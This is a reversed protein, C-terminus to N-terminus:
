VECIIGQWLRGGLDPARWLGLVGFAIILLGALWRVSQRRLVDRFRALALGALLLNPLTGLAFCGMLLAGQTASGSLLATSLVSYILGCPILGWLMGLPLAQQWSRAPLYRAALPQIRRWLRGGIRELPALLVTVGLLYAGLALLLLNALVYLALQVPLVHNFLLTASGLAGFVAGLVAYTLMRGGNYALHLRWDPQTRAQGPQMVPGSLATVIGGCMGVCHTGGLLGILFVALLGPEAM